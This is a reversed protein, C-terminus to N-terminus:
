FRGRFHLSGPGLVARPADPGGGLALGLPWVVAGALALVGGTIGLGLPLGLDATGTALCQGMGDRRECSTAEVVVASVVLGVGLAILVGGTVHPWIPEGAAGAGGQRGGDRAVLEIRLTTRASPDPEMVVAQEFSEYGERECRVAYQGPELRVDFPIQGLVEGTDTRVCVAGQTGSIFLRPGAGMSYRSLAQRLADRVASGLSRGETLTEEGRFTVGEVGTLSVVVRAPVTPDSERVSLTLGVVVDVSQSAALRAACQDHNPRGPTCGTGESVQWEEATLLASAAARAEARVSASLRADGGVERLIRASRPQAVAPSAVAVIAAAVLIWVRHQIVM